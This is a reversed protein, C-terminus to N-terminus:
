INILINERAYDPAFDMIQGLISRGILMLIYFFVIM